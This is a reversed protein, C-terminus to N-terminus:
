SQCALRASRRSIGLSISSPSGSVRFCSIRISHVYIAHRNFFPAVEHSLPSAELALFSSVQCSVARISFRVGGWLFKRCFVENGLDSGKGFFLFTVKGVQHHIFLRPKLSSSRISM